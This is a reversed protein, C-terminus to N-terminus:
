LCSLILPSLRRRAVLFVPQSQFLFLKRFGDLSMQEEALPSSVSLVEYYTLHQSKGTGTKPVLSLWSLILFIFDRPTGTTAWCTVFGVLVWSSVPKIGPRAWHTLSGANGHATTYPASVAWIECQQPQPTSGLQLESKVGLRPAGMHQLHPRFCFLAFCFSGLFISHLTPIVLWM